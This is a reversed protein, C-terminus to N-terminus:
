TNKEQISIKFNNMAEVVIPHSIVLHISPANEKSIIFFKNDYISININKFINDIIKYDYNKHKKKFQKTLKIHELYDEYTYSIKNNYFIKSLSLTCKFDEKPLISIEDVITNNKLTDLARQREKNYFEIIQQKEKENINNNILLKNLLDNSLTYIPLNYNINKINGNVNNIFEDFDKKKNYDYINMFTSAKKILAKTNEKYYNIEDKKNTVYFKSKNINGSICRGNLAYVGNTCDITSYISNNPEKFYYSSVLGTMYLPIWGELGMMIEKFPRDLNHIINIHCGKKLILALGFMFKKTFELDKSAEIMPM